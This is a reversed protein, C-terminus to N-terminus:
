VLMLTPNEILKRFEALFTAGVAGDVVRHDCSMGVGMRQGAVVEGSANVVPKANIAGISLIAARPPNIIADFTEIGYAGLTRSRSQAARCKTPSSNKIAPAPPSTKSPSASNKSRRTGPTASSRPSWATTSPSPSPSTSRDSHIIADGDFAANAAPVAKCAGVIARLIFDNVTYKNGNEGAAANIQKRIAMLPGADVEINLYFHPIQQKSALLREAIVRRMNSLPLRQDGEHVTARIAPQAPAAAGSGSRVERRNRRDRKAALVDKKM